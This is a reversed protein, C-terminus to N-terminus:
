SSLQVLEYPDIVKVTLETTHLVDVTYFVVKLICAHALRFMSSCSNSLLSHVVTAKNDREHCQPSDIALMPDFVYCPVHKIQFCTYCM